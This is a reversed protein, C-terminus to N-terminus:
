QPRRRLDEPDLFGTRKHILVVIALLLATVATGAVIDTSCLAQVVPDVAPGTPARAFVPAPAGTRFGIGLALVYTAAQAVSLSVVLHVLNRSTVAGYLGAAFLWVAVLYPLVSM